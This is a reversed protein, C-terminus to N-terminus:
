VQQYSLLRYKPYPKINVENNQNGGLIWIFTDNQRIFFGVHGKWSEFSERWLVVIDGPEPQKTKHGINTWSRANLKNSIETCGANQCVWNAFASCWATEDTRVWTQGISHFYELIDPNNKETGQVEKVGYQSFASELIRQNTPRM